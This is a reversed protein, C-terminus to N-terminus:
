PPRIEWKWNIKAHIKCCRQAVTSGTILSRSVDHKLHYCELTVALMYFYAVM